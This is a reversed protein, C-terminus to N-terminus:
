RIIKKPTIIFDRWFELRGVVSRAQELAEIADDIVAIEQPLADAEDKKFAALECKDFRKMLRRTTRCITPYLPATVGLMEYGVDEALTEDFVVTLQIVGESQAAQRLARQIAIHGCYNGDFRREGMTLFVGSGKVGEFNTLLYSYAARKDDAAAGVYLTYQM